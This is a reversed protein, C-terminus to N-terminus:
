FTKTREKNLTNKDHAPISKQVVAHLAGFIQVFEHSSYHLELYSWKGDEAPFGSAKLREKVTSLIIRFHPKLYLDFQV